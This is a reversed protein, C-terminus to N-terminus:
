LGSLETEAAILQGQLASAADLMAKGQIQPDLTKNKSSFQSLQLTAQDLQQKVKDLREELFVRERHAASTTLEAVRGNLDDVYAQAMAAARQPSHDQVTITIIGSRKDESISTRKQLTRRADEYRRDGYEARLDFANIIDDQITRSNLIGVITA